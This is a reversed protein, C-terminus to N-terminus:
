RAGGEVSEWGRPSSQVRQAEAWDPIRMQSRISRGSRYCGSGVAHSYGRSYASILADAKTAHGVGRADLYDLGEDCVHWGDAEGFIRATLKTSM